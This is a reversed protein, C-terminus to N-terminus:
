GEDEEPPYAANLADRVAKLSKEYQRKKKSDKLTARIVQLATPVGINMISDFVGRASAEQGGRAAPGDKILGDDGSSRSKRTAM